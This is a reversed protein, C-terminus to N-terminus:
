PQKNADSPKQQFLINFYNTELVKESVYFMADLEAQKQKIYQELLTENLDSEHSPSKKPEFKGTSANYSGLDTLFSRSVFPILVEDNSFVDRGMMLRSDYELGLLNSLTPLIDFSSCTREVDLGKVNPIYLLFANKYLEFEMEVPHGALECMTEYSLGYPYHDASIAIVTRDAQGRKELEEILHAVARDLEIQCALYAKAEESMNLHEVLHKNKSSMQNGAFSYGLHGSVTMYYAHYPVQDMYEPATIQMMELDSEPWTETVNLGSGLGKYEYGLNPHSLDRTYYNFYHNHYAMTKYGLAKLQNGLTLPLYNASSNAMSWVGAKPILSQLAVYEGDSTSVGWIPTYFNHFRIGETSLKYLTPTLEKDIALHSFGEATILILNYGQCIGTYTNTFSAKRSSFYKNLNAIVPNNEYGPIAQFNLSKLIQPQFVLKSSDFEGGPEPNQPNLVDTGAVQSDTKPLPEESTTIPLTTEPFSTFQLGMDTSPLFHSAIDLRTYTLIGFANMASNPTFTKYYQMRASRPAEGSLGFLSIAILHAAFSILVLNEWSINQLRADRIENETTWGQFLRKRLLVVAIFPLLLVALPLASQLISTLTTDLFALGQGMKLFSSATFFTKFVKYYVIQSGFYLLLVSSLTFSLLM